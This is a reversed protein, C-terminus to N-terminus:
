YEIEVDKEEQTEEDLTSETHYRQSGSQSTSYGSEVFRVPYHKSPDDTRSRLIGVGSRWTSIGKASFFNDLVGFATSYEVSTDKKEEEVRLGCEELEKINELRKNM